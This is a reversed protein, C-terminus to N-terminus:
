PVETVGVQKHNFAQILCYISTSYYLFHSAEMSGPSKDPTM